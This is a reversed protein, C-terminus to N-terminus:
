HFCQPIDLTWGIRDMELTERLILCIEESPRERICHLDLLCRLELYSVNSTLLRREKREVWHYKALCLPNKCEIGDCLGHHM